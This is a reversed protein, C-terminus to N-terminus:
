LVMECVRPQLIRNSPQCSVIINNKLDRKAIINCDTPKSYCSGIFFLTRLTTIVLLLILIITFSYTKINANNDKISLIFFLAFILSVIFLLFNSYLALDRLLFNVTLPKNNKCTNQKNVIKLNCHNEDTNNGICTRNSYLILNIIAIPIM